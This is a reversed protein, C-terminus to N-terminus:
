EGESTPLFAMLDSGSLIGAIQANELEERRNIENGEENTLTSLGFLVQVANVTALLETEQEESITGDAILETVIQQPTTGEVSNAIKVTIDTIIISADIEESESNQVETAAISYILTMTSIAITMVDANELTEPNSLLTAAADINDSNTEGLLEVFSELLDETETGSSNNAFVSLADMPVTLGTWLELIKEQDEISLELLKEPSDGLAILIENIVQPDKLVNSDSLLAVLDETSENKLTESLDKREYKKGLSTTFFECSLLSLSFIMSFFFIISLKFYKM